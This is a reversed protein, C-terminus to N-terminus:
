SKGGHWKYFAEMDTSVDEVTAPDGMAEFLAEVSAAEIVRQGNSLTYCKVEVGFIHFSGSWVTHPIDTM